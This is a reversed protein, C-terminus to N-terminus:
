GANAKQMPIRQAADESALRGIRVLNGQVGLVTATIENGIRLTEGVHQPLILM